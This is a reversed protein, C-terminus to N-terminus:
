GMEESLTEGFADSLEKFDTAMDMSLSRLIILQKPSINGGSEVGQRIDSIVTTLETITCSLEEFLDSHNLSPYEACLYDLLWEIKENM